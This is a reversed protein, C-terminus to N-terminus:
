PTVEDLAQEVKEEVTTGNANQPNLMNEKDADGQVGNLGANADKRVSSSSNEGSKAGSAAARESKQRVNSLEATGESPKSNSNGFALAPSASSFILLACAAAIALPKIWALSARIVNSLSNLVFKM